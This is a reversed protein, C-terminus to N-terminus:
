NEKGKLKVKIEAPMERCEGAHCLIKYIIKHLEWKLPFGASNPWRQRHPTHRTQINRSCSKHSEPSVHFKCSKEACRQFIQHGPLFWISCWSHKPKASCSQFTWQFLRNVSNGLQDDHHTKTSALSGWTHLLSGAVGWQVGPTWSEPGTTDASDAEVRWRHTCVCLPISVLSFLQKLIRLLSFEYYIILCMCQRAVWFGTQLSWLMLSPTPCPLDPVGILCAM